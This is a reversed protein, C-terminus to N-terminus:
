SVGVGRAGKDREGEGAGGGCTIKKGVTGLRHKQPLKNYLNIM